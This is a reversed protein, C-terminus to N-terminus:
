KEHHIQEQLGTPMELLSAPDEHILIEAQPFLQRLNAEVEDSIAHAEFLTLHDELELHLQIFTTLGSRRTRLDHMGQVQPHDNVMKKISCRAEESLEHDMLDDLANRIIEKVSYLLFGVIALAVMADIGSWLYQSLLLSLLVGINILLDTRYHLSDARIATSGTQKVVMSQYSVLILTLVISIGMVMVGVMAMELPQPSWLRRLSELVLFLASGSIFMSQGLGSLAEAKGHGFRHERDAPSLAHRVALLNLLSALADLCSDILTALLSVSDTYIWAVAKLLILMVAVTASAYTAYRMLQGHSASVAM